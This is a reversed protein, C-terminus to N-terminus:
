CTSTASASTTLAAASGPSPRAPVAPRDMNVKLGEAAYYGNEDALFFAANSGDFPANLSVKLDTQAWASSCWSLASIGVAAVVAVVLSSRFSHTRM